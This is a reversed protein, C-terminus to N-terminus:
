EGGYLDRMMRIAYEFAVRAEDGLDDTLEQRIQVKMSDADEFDYFKGNSIHAVQRKIIQGGNLDGMHRCYLHAKILHKREQDNGIKHLYSVYELTAPTLYCYSGDDIELFDAYISKLRPLGAMKEFMGQRSAYWEIPDYIALLNYLYNKYEQKEIKGSLLLKAFKTTEAEHHLDKTIERLSM